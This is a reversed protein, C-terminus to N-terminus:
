LSNFFVKLIQSNLLGMVRACINNCCDWNVYCFIRWDGSIMLLDNFFNYANNFTIRCSSLSMHGSWLPIRSPNGIPIRKRSIARLPQKRKRWKVARLQAIIAFFSAILYERFQTSNRPIARFQASNCPIAHMPIPKMDLFDIIKFTRSVFKHLLYM